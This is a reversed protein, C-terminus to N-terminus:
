ELLLIALGIMNVVLIAALTIVTWKGFDYCPSKSNLIMSSVGSKLVFSIVFDFYPSGFVEAINSIDTAIIIAILKNIYAPIEYV